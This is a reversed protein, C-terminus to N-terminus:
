KRLAVSQRIFEFDAKCDSASETLSDTTLIYLGMGERAVIQHETIESGEQNLILSIDRASSKGLTTAENQGLRGGKNEPRELDTSLAKAYSSLPLLPSWAIVRLSAACAQDKRRAEVFQKTGQDTLSWSGPARLLVGYTPNTYEKAQDDQSIHASTQDIASYHPMYLGISCLALYAAGIVVALGIPIATPLGGIANLRPAPQITTLIEDENERALRYAHVAMFALVLEMFVAGATEGRQGESNVGSLLIRQFIGLGIFVTFGAKRQGLYFYGFGRTLLNLIAAVRPSEPVFPDTGATMERATFYADLFGFAYLFVAIRFLIGWLVAMGTNGALMPIMWLSAGASILFFVLTWAGRSNKGCYFQGLGPVVLSLLFALTPNKPVPQPTFTPRPREPNVPAGSTLSPFSSM